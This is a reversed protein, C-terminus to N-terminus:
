NKYVLQVPSVSAKYKSISHNQCTETIQKKKAYAFLRILHIAKPQGNFQFKENDLDGNRLVLNAHGNQFCLSLCIKVFHKKATLQGCILLSWLIDLIVHFSLGFCASVCSIIAQFYLLLQARMLLTTPSCGIDCFVPFCYAMTKKLNQRESIYHYTIHTHQQQTNIYRTM